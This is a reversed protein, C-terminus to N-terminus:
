KKLKNYLEKIKDNSLTNLLGNKLESLMEDKTPEMIPKSNYSEFYDVRDQLWKILEKTTTLNMGVQNIREYIIYDDYDCTYYRSKYSSGYNSIFEIAGINFKDDLFKNLEEKSNFTIKPNEILELMDEDWIYEGEDIDLRYVTCECVINIDTITASSGLMKEMRPTVYVAPSYLTGAKINKIKVKDGISFM